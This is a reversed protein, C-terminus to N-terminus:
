DVYGRGIEKCAVDSGTKEAAYKVIQMLENADDYRACDFQITVEGDTSWRYIFVHYAPSVGVANWQGKGDVTEEKELVLRDSDVKSIWRYPLAQNEELVFIITDGDINMEDMDDLEDYSYESEQQITDETSEPVNESVDERSVCATMSFLVVAMVLLRKVM